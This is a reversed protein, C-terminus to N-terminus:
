QDEVAQGFVRVKTAINAIPTYYLCFESGSFGAGVTGLGVDQVGNGDDYSLVEGYQTEYM